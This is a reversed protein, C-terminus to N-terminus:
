TTLHFCLLNPITQRMVENYAASSFALM